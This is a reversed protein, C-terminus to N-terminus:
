RWGLLRSVTALLCSCDVIPPECALGARRFRMIGLCPAIVSCFDGRCRGVEHREGSAWELEYYLRPFSVCHM